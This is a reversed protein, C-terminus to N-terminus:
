PKSEGKVAKAVAAHDPSLGGRLVVLLSPADMGTTAAEVAALYTKFQPPAPNTAPWAASKRNRMWGWIRTWPVNVLVLGTFALAAIVWAPLGFITANQLM